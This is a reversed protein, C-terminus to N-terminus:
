MVQVLLLIAIIGLLNCLSNTTVWDAGEAPAVMFRRCLGFMRTFRSQAIILKKLEKNILPFWIPCIDLSPQSTPSSGCLMYAAEKYKRYLSNPEYQLIATNSWDTRYGEEFSHLALKYKDTYGERLNYM